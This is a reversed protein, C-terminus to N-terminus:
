FPVTQGLGIAGARDHIARAAFLDQAVIGVSKYITIEESSSRGPATGAQVHGIEGKIDDADFAGESIPILIEGAEALASALLDVWISSRTVADTDAERATASHAGVLNIHAGAKLWAGRLIPEGAATLTSVIDSQAAEKISDTARIRLGTRKSEIEAMAAAKTRDRGWILVDDISPRAAQIADIHTSALAGTGLIGHSRPSPNALLRTALGSTAATRLITVAAGDIIATPAGTDCDFMLVCGQIAPRGRAPNHPFITAVKCGIMDPDAALGPM